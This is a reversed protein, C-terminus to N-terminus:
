SAFCYYKYNNYIWSVFIIKQIKQNQIKAMFISIYSILYYPIRLYFFFIYLTLPFTQHPPIFKSFKQKACIQRRETEVLIRERTLEESIKQREINKNGHKGKTNIEM